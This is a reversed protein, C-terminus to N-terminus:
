STLSTETPGTRRGSGLRASPGAACKRPPGGLRYTGVTRGFPRAWPRLKPRHCVYRAILIVVVAVVGASGGLGMGHTDEPPLGGVIALIAVLVGIIAGALMERRLDHRPPSPEHEFGQIPQGM